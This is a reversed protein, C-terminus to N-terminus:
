RRRRLVALPALVLLGAAAGPGPVATIRAQLNLPPALSGPDVSWAQTASDQVYVGAGHSGVSAGVIQASPGFVLATSTIESMAMAFFFSDPVIVQPSFAVITSTNQGGLLTVGAVSGSWIEAGPVGQDSQLLTLHVRVSTSSGTQSSFSALRVEFLTVLRDTGALNVLQAAQADHEIGGPSEIRTDTEAPSVTNGDHLVWYAQPAQFASYVVSARAGEQAAGLGLVM